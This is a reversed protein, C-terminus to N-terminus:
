ETSFVVNIQIGSDYNGDFGGGGACLCTNNGENMESVEDDRDVIAGVWYSGLPFKPPITANTSVLAPSNPILSSFTFSAIQSDSTTINQDSSLYIGVDVDYQTDTGLNLYQFWVRITDGREYDEVVSGKFFGPHCQVRSTPHGEDAYYGKRWNGIALDQGTSAHPYLFRLGERADEQVVYETDEPDVAHGAVAFSPYHSNMTDPVDDEHALAAVHGLEHVFTNQRSFEDGSGIDIVGTETFNAETGPWGAPENVWDGLTEDEDNHYPAGNFLVDADFLLCTAENGLIWTTALTHKSYGFNNWTTEDFECVESMGNGACAGVDDNGHFFTLTSGPIEGGAGGTYTPVLDEMIEHTESGEPFHTTNIYIGRLPAIWELVDCEGYSLPEYAAVKGGVGFLFVIALAFLWLKATTKSDQRSM